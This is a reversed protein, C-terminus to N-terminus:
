PLALALPSLRVPALWWITTRPDRRPEPSASPPLAPSPSRDPLPAARGPTLQCCDGLASCGGEKGKQGNDGSPCCGSRAPALLHQMGRPQITPVQGPRAPPPLGGSWARPHPM